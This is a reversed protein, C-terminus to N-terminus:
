EIILVQLYDMIQIEVNKREHMPIFHLMERKMLVQLYDMMQIEVNKTLANTHFTVNGKEYNVGPLYLQIMM